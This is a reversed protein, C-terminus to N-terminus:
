GGDNRSTLRPESGKVFTHTHKPVRRDIVGTDLDRGGARKKNAKHPNHITQDWKKHSKPQVINRLLHRNKRIKISKVRARCGGAPPFSVAALIPRYISPFRRQHFTAGPQPNRRSDSSSRVLVESAMQKKFPSFHGAPPPGVVLLTQCCSGRVLPFKFHSLRVDVESKTGAPSIM